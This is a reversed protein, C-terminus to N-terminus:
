ADIPDKAREVLQDLDRVDFLVRRIARGPGRELRVRRLQGRADLERILRPSVGLYRAAGAFDVLRASLPVVPATPIPAAPPAPRPRTRPRGPTGRLRGSAGALPRPAPTMAVPA